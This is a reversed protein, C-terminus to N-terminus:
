PHLHLPSSPQGRPSMGGEMGFVESEGGCGEGMREEGREAWVTVMWAYRSTPHPHSSIHRERKRDKQKATKRERTVSEDKDREEEGEWIEAPFTLILSTREAPVPRCINLFRSLSMCYRSKRGRCIVLLIRSFVSKKAKIQNNNWRLVQFIYQSSTQNIFILNIFVLFISKSSLCESHKTQTQKMVTLYVLTFWHQHATLSMSDMKSTAVTASFDCLLTHSM